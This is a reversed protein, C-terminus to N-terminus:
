PLLAREIDFDTGRLYRKLPQPLPLDWVGNMKWQIAELITMRCAHLLNQPSEPFCTDMVDACQFEPTGHIRWYASICNNLMVVLRWPLYKILCCMIDMFYKCTDWTQDRAAASLKQLISTMYPHLLETKEKDSFQDIEAHLTSKGFVSVKINSGLNAM